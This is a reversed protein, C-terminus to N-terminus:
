GGRPRSVYIRANLKPTTPELGGTALIFNRHNEFPATNEYEQFDYVKFVENDQRKINREINQQPTENCYNLITHEHQNVISSYIINSIHNQCLISFFIPFGWLFHSLIPIFKRPPCKKLVSIMNVFSLKGYMVM